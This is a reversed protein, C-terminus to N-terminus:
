LNFLAVPCKKPLPLSESKRFNIALFSNNHKCYATYHTKCVPDNPVQFEDRKCYNCNECRKVDCM